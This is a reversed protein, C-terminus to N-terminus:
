RLGALFDVLTEVEHAPLHPFAPMSGDSNRSRPDLLQQRLQERSLRAGVGKLDPGVTGGAGGLRHCGKCGQSNLLQWARARADDAAAQRTLALASFLLFLVLLCRSM